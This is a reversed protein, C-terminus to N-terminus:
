ICGNLENMRGDNQQKTTMLKFTTIGIFTFHCNSSTGGYYLVYMSKTCSQQHPTIGDGNNTLPFYYMFIISFCAYSILYSIHFTTQRILKLAISIEPIFVICVSYRIFLKFFTMTVNM